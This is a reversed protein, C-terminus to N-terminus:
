QWFNGWTTFYQLQQLHQLIYWYILCSKCQENLLRPLMQQVSIAGIIFLGVSTANRETKVIIMNPAAGLGHGVTAGDTSNGTYSVISFGYAPNARVSSTISGDTNSVTSDGADWCWAVYTNVM